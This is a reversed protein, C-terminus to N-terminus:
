RTAVWFADGPRFASDQGRGSPTWGIVADPAPAPSGRDWPLAGGETRRRPTFGTSDWSLM